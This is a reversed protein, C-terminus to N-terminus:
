SRHSGAGSALAAAVRQDIEFADAFGAIEGAQRSRNILVLTPSFNVPVQNLLTSYTSLDQLPVAVKVVAGGHTPVSALEQRVARDDAASPNFFLLALVEHQRLGAQVAAFGAQASGKAAAQPASKLSNAAHSSASSAGAASAGPKAAQANPSHTGGTTPPASPSPSAPTPAGGSHGCGEAHVLGPVSCAKNIASQYTGLGQHAPGSSSPKLATMWLGFFVVTGLLLAILPRPVSAM